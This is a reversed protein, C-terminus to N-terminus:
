MDANILFGRDPDPNRANTPWYTTANLDVLIPEFIQLPTMGDDTSIINKLGILSAFRLAIGLFEFNIFSCRTKGATKAQFPSTERLCAM